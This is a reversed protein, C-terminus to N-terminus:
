GKEKRADPSANGYITRFGSTSGLNYADNLAKAKPFNLIDLDYLYGSVSILSRVTAHIFAMTM